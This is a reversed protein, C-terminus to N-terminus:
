PHFVLLVREDSSIAPQLAWWGAGGVAGELRDHRANTEFASDPMKRVDAAPLDPLRSRALSSIGSDPAGAHGPVVALCALLGILGVIVGRRM